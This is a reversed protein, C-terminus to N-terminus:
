KSIRQFIEEGYGGEGFLKLYQDNHLFMIRKFHSRKEDLQDKPRLYYFYLSGVESNEMTVVGRWEQVNADPFKYHASSDTGHDDIFTTVNLLLEDKDNHVVNAIALTEGQLSQNTGSYLRIYKTCKRLHKTYALTRGLFFIIAGFIASSLISIGITEILGM